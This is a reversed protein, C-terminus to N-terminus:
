ILGGYGKNEIEDALEPGGTKVLKGDKMIIIRDPKVYELIRKYHTILLIARESNRIKNIGEAVAKLADIDLGSDTEDLIALDPELVAMQLIETRKKEGGSFGENIYRSLFEEDIGLEEASKKFSEYTKLLDLKEDKGQRAQVAARLFNAVTVGAVASPYQFSMFIGRRARKDPELEKMSEGKFLIDGSEIRYKPNGMITNALTSKGSGNPGMLALVEGKKIELNFSNIIEKGEVSVSLNKVDLLNTM